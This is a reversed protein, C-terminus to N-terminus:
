ARHTSEAPSPGGYRADWPKEASVQQVLLRGAARNHIQHYAGAPVVLSDGRALEAWTRDVCVHAHGEVVTWVHETRAHRHPPLAAGPEFGYLEVQLHEGAHLTQYSFNDPRYQAREQPRIPQPHPFGGDPFPTETSAPRAPLNAPDLHRQARRLAASVDPDLLRRLTGDPEPVVDFLGGDFFATPDEWDPSTVIPYLCIGQVDAGLRRAAEVEDALYGLWGSRSRGSDGTEALLLPGGYRESLELLSERLRIWGAEGMELFRQPQEPTPITWQNCAYYNLGVVGLHRRSGGLEPALRGALMDFAETVVHRNFHEAAGQLDPRGPPAHQRVLPDVSVIVASRDVESWIADIAAISARVLQRKLEGGRGHWFPAMYGIDGGSYAYYSIENVPTLYLSGDTEERAARMAAVAFARFRDVFADSAPDLDDPYGYHFLDWVQVVGAERGLRALRRVESVDLAGGRDLRPWRAAERVARIGAERCRAYDAGAQRDHQTMEILDLRRGDLTRQMSCEFGGMFLSGFLWPTEPAVHPSAHAAVSPSATDTDTTSRAPPEDRLTPM